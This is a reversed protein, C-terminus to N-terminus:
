DEPTSKIMSGPNPCASPDIERLRTRRIASHAMATKSKPVPGSVISAGHDDSDDDNNGHQENARGNTQPASPHIPSQAFRMLSTVDCMVLRQSM